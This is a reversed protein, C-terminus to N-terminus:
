TRAPNDLRNLGKGFMNKIVYITRLKKRKPKENERKNQKKSSYIHICMHIYLEKRASCFHKYVQSELYYSFREKKNYAKNCTVVSSHRAANVSLFVRALVRKWPIVSTCTAIINRVANVHINSYIMEHLKGPTQPGQTRLRSFSTMYKKKKSIENSQIHTNRMYKEIYVCLSKCVYYVKCQWYINNIIYIYAATSDTSM